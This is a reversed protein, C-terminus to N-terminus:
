EDDEEGENMLEYRSYITDHVVRCIYKPINAIKSEPLELVKEWTEESMPDEGKRTLENYRDILYLYMPRMCLKDVFTYEYVDFFQRIQDVQEQRLTKPTVFKYGMGMVKLRAQLILVPTNTYTKRIKLNKISTPNGPATLIKGLSKRGLVSTRVFINHEAFDVMSLQSGLNNIESISIPTNSTLIRNEKKDASKAPVGAKTTRGTSRASFNKNSTQKLLYMYKYGVVAPRMLPKKMGFVNVYLQYPKIIDGYTEYIKKLAEYRVVASPSKFFYYGDREVAQVFAHKFDEDKSEVYTKDDIKVQVNYHNIFTQMESENIMGIFKFIEEIKRDDNELTCIWQRHREAAFNIDVEYVQDTNLRRFAGTGNLVIDIPTGDEMYYMSEDEVVDIKMGTTDIDLYNSLLKSFKDFEADTKPKIKDAEDCIDSIVGKDGYRGVIKCGEKPVVVTKTKFEVVMNAFAKDKLKWKYEPDNWHKYRKRMLAVNDTYKSGCGKIETAAKLIADAYRCGCDYYYKLQKFFDNDPFPADSNYYVNIDYIVSNLKIHYENDTTFVQTLNRELFDYMANMNNIRRTACLTDNDTIIEGVDPFTKYGHEKDGHMFLLVDNDNISVITSDVEYFSLENLFGRRIKVGDEYTATDSSFMVLANKGLRYNMHEDYSTSKYLIPDTVEDGINLSDMMETNYGYGFKESLCVASQKEVMDYTDTSKQYLVLTYVSDNDFKRIKDVVKWDGELQKYAHSYKGFANEYGGSIRPIDPNIPVVFQKQNQTAMGLRAGDSGGPYFMLSPGYCYEMNPIKENLELLDKVELM